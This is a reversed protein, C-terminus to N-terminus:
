ASCSWSAFARLQRVAPHKRVGQAVVRAHDESRCERSGVGEGIFHRTIVGVVGASLLRSRQLAQTGRDRFSIAVRGRAPFRAGCRPSRSAISFSGVYEIAAEQQSGQGHPMRLKRFEDARAAGVRLDVRGAGASCLGHRQRLVPDIGSTAAAHDDNRGVVHSGVMRISHNPAPKRALPAAAVSSTTSSAAVATRDDGGRGSRRCPRRRAEDDLAGVGGSLAANLRDAFHQARDSGVAGEM